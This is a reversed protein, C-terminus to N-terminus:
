AASSLEKILLRKALPLYTEQVPIDLESFVEFVSPNPLDKFERSLWLKIQQPTNIFDAKQESIFQTHLSRYNQENCIIKSLSYRFVNITRRNDQLLLYGEDRYM